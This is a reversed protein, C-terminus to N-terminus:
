SFLSMFWDVLMRRWPKPDQTITKGDDWLIAGSNDSIHQSWSTIFHDIEEQSAWSAILARLQAQSEPDLDQYWSFNNYSETVKPYFVQQSEQLKTRVIWRKDATGIPVCTYFTVQSWTGLSDFVTADDPKTEYSQTVLYVYRMWSDPTVRKYYRVIDGSDLMPLTAFISTFDTKQNKFFNSHWWILANGEFWPLSTGPYHHVWQKLFENVDLNRWEVIDKYRPDTTPTYVVPSIIGLGPIIIYEDYVRDWTSPLIDLWARLDATDLVRTWSPPATDVNASPIIKVWKVDLPTLAYVNMSACILSLTMISVIMYVSINKKM